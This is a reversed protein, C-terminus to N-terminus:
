RMMPALGHALRRIRDWESRDGVPSKVMRVALCEIFSLAAPDVKGAFLADGRPAVM